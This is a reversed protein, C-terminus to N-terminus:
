LIHIKWVKISISHWGLGYKEELQAQYLYWLGKWAFKSPLRPMPLWNRSVCYKWFADSPIGRVSLFGNIMSLNQAHECGVSGRKVAFSTENMSNSNDNSNGRLRAKMCASLRCDLPFLNDSTWVGATAVDFEDRELLWAVEQELLISYHPSQRMSVEYISTYLHELETKHNKKSTSTQSSKSYHLLYNIVTVDSLFFRPILSLLAEIISKTAYTVYRRRYRIM